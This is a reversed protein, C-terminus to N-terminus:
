VQQVVLNVGEPLVGAGALVMVGTDKDTYQAYHTEPQGPQSPQSPQGPQGPQNPDTPTSGGNDGIKLGDVASQLNKLATDIESQAAEPNDILTKAQSLANTFTNWSQNTYSGQTKDQNARYLSQLASKDAAVTVKKLANMADKLSQVAANVDAQPAYKTNNVQTAAGLADSFAKWSESTYDQSNLKEAATIEQQLATKDAEQKAQVSYTDIVTGDAKQAQVTFSNADVTCTTYVRDDKNSDVFAYLEPQDPKVDYTKEATHGAAIYVTGSTKQQGGVLPYTRGYSHDHGSFVFNVGLEDCAATLMDHFLPSSGDAPNKNYAPQHTAVIKWTKSSSNMDAKLWDLESQMKEKTETWGIVAVHVNGYDTSYCGSPNVSPGNQPNPFITSFKTGDDGMYEHNGLVHLMDITNFVPHTNFMAATNDMQKFVQQDDTFDGVHLMFAPLASSNEIATMMASFDNLGGDASSQTDGFVNFILKDSDAATTFKSVPSWNTGDGVRSVYTTGAALGQIVVNNEQVAVNESNYNLIRQVGTVSKFVAEGKENYEAETAYQAVASSGGTVPNTMWSFAKQTKPDATTGTMLNSPTSDKVPAYNRASLGFSYLGDKEASLTFKQSSATLADSALVGDSGTTGLASESGGEPTISVAAGEVPTGATDTVLVKGTRGVVAELVKISYTSVASVSVPSASFSGHFSADNVSKYEASSSLLSCELKSGDAATKPANVHIVALNATADQAAADSQGVTVDLIGTEANYQYSSGAAVSPDFSVSTVPLGKTLQIKANVSKIDSLHNTSINFLYDGGLSVTDGTQNLEVKTGSGSNVTFYVDKTTENGFNDQVSVTVKHVGDSWRYNALTFTGDKDYSYHGEVNTYDNGDVSIKIRGWNIGTMYKDTDDDHISTTINVNGNQYTKGDVSVSDVIPPKMDDVSTGYVARVNDIYVSGKRMANGNPLGSKLCMVRIMQKPFTKFPGAFSSLSAECYKWGVWNIGTTQDTFNLTCAQGTQNYVACRLWYGKAEPTAYIWAGIATPMGPVDVSTAPGAYAGLTAGQQANTFDFNLELSKNDFRVPEGSSYDVSKVSTVEGRGANGASWDGVGNEFNYIVVPLQGVQANIGASLGNIKATIAGSVSTDPSTHLINNAMTGMGQPVSWDIDGDKLTVDRYQYQACFGLNSDKDFPLSIDPTKFFIKNPLAIEVWASGVVTGNYKLEAQVQGQKGNSVFQGSENINGFSPDSLDWTLGSQPLPAAEGANDLGTASFKVSSNPTFTKDGPTIYASQFQHNSTNNSVILWSNAIPREGGDSPINKVTLDSDGPTRSLMTASGGGDLNGAWMAGMDKMLRATQELTLGHSYPDQRGDTLVFFVTGNARVGVALRPALVDSKDSNVIEGNSVLISHIGLAEKIDAKNNEYVTRDGYIPTGDNKLGFFSWYTRDPAYEHVEVGNKVVVGLPEGTAMDYMDANFAAVVNKGNAKAANAQERVTSMGYDPGDHPTGAALTINSAKPNFEQSFCANRNGNTDVYSFIKETLGPVITTRSENVIATAMTTSVDPVGLAEVPINAAIQVICLVMAM